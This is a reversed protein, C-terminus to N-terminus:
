AAPPPPDSSNSAAEAADRHRDLAWATAERAMAPHIRWRHLQREAGEVDEGLELLSLALRRARQRLQSVDPPAIQVEQWRRHEDQLADSLRSVQSRNLPALKRRVQMTTESLRQAAGFQCCRDITRMFPSSKGGKGGLGLARATETLDLDFGSPNAELDNAIRRLLLVTSPGLIGLWFREVYPSRPDFGVQDIVPDPWPRVLLASTPFLPEPSSM